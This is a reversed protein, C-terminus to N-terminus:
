KRESLYTIYSMGLSYAVGLGLLCINLHNLGNANMLSLATSIIIATGGINLVRKSSINETLSEKVSEFVTSTSNNTETIAINGAEAEKKKKDKIISTVTSVVVPLLSVIATFPNKM